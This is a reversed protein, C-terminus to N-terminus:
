YIFHFHKRNKKIININSITCGDSRFIDRRFINTATAYGSWIEIILVIYNTCLIYVASM